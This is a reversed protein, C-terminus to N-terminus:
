LVNGQADTAILLEGDPNDNSQEAIWPTICERETLCVDTLSELFAVLDAIDNNRLQVQPLESVDDDREQQLKNLANLTNARVNPYLNQCNNVSEFQPLQCWQEDEIYDLANDRPNDYHNVVDTLTQYSGAHGYPATLSINLLSPTRFRYREDSNGTINERGFDDDGTTGNGKGSGIQPFAVVHHEEDSLKPGSHCASCGAGDDEPRSFFLIAGSKQQETLAATDGDLYQRWPSNVFIMSRQYEGLAFAINDFTILTQADDSSSFALQFEDLWFTFMLEGFGEEYDGIRAALHHRIEENTNGSEFDESKMEDVSTVPFKAQAAVLNAGANSDAITFGSDPTSIAGVAGNQGPQALISEVRSDWFLGRDFLAVNVVSPSNRPVSPLGDSDIRGIGLVNIDIADIGVPLSLEDAGALSPHHCSACATDKNGSLSKSFFLKKGLQAIPDSISPLDRGAIPSNDLNLAEILEALREDNETLEPVVIADDDGQVIPMDTLTVEESTSGGCGSIVLGACLTLTNVGRPSFFKSLQTVMSMEGIVM